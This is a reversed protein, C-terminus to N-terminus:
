SASREMNFKETENGWVDWGPRSERAFMELARVDHGAYDKARQYFEDPKRSHQRVPAFILQHILNNRRKPSGKRGLMVYEANQWTTKSLGRHFDLSSLPFLPTPQAKKTKIWVFAVSSPRFGWAEFVAMHYGAVLCPGTIWLMLHCDRATIDKVPLACIDELPMTKYHREPSRGLGKKSWAKFQWAPDAAILGYPGEPLQVQEIQSLM